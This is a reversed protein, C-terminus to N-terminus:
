KTKSVTSLYNQAGGAAAEFAQIGTGAAILGPGAATLAAGAAQLSGAAIPMIALMIPDNGAVTLLAGAVTVQPGAISLLGTTMATDMAVQQLRFTTGLGLAEIADDDGLLCSSTKVVFKSSAEERIEPAKTTAKDSADTVITKCTVEVADDGKIFVKGSGSVKFRLSHDKEVVLMVEGVDDTAEQPPIDAASWLRAIVVAGEAADGSPIAVALEDDKHIPAYFGFGTGAYDAPVRATYEEGTPLLKVDVFVGQEKDVQAEDLAIALSVWVRTDIGPRSMAASLRGVDINKSIRTRRLM